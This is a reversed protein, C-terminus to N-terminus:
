KWNCCFTFSTLLRTHVYLCYWAYNIKVQFLTAKAFGSFFDEAVSLHYLAQTFMPANDNVDQLTITITVTANLPIDGNDKATVTLVYSSEAERDLSAANSVAIIGTNENIDFNEDGMGTLTYRIMGNSGADMDTASM